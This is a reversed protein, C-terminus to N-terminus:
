KFTKGSPKYWASAVHVRSKSETYLGMGAPFASLRLILHVLVQGARIDEARFALAPGLWLLAVIAFVASISSARTMVACDEHM